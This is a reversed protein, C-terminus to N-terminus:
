AACDGSAAPNSPLEDAIAMRLAESALLRTSDLTPLASNEDNIILPIETCGLVVADCGLQKYREIVQRYYSVSEPVVRGCM